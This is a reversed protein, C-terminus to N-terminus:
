LICSDYRGEMAHKYNLTFKDVDEKLKEIFKKVYENPISYGGDELYISTYDEFM